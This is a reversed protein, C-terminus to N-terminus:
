ARTAVPKRHPMEPPPKMFKLHQENLKCLGLDSMVQRIYQFQEITEFWLRTSISPLAGYSMTLKSRTNVSKGDVVWQMIEFSQNLLIVGADASSASELRIIEQLCVNSQDFSLKGHTFDKTELRLIEAFRRAIRDDRYNISLSASKFEHHRTAKALFEKLLTSARLAPMKRLRHGWVSSKSPQYRYMKVLKSPL